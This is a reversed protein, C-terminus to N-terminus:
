HPSEGRKHLGAVIEFQASAKRGVLCLLLQLAHGFSTALSRTRRFFNRNTVIPLRIVPM